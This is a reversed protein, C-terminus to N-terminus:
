VEVVDIMLVSGILVGAELGHGEKVISDLLDDVRKATGLAREGDQNNGVMSKALRHMGDVWVRDQALFAKFPFFIALRGPICPNNGIPAGRHDVHRIGGPPCFQAM